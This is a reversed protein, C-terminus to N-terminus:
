NDNTDDNEKMKVVSLVSLVSLVSVPWRGWTRDKKMIRTMQAIRPENKRKVGVIATEREIIMIRTM